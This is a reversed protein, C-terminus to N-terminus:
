DKMKSLVIHEIQPEFKMFNNVIMAGGFGNVVHQHINKKIGIGIKIYAIGYKVTGIEDHHSVGYKIRNLM